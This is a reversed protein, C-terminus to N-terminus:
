DVDLAGNHAGGFGQILAVPSQDCRTWLVSKGLEAWALDGGIM